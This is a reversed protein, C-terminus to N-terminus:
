RVPATTALLAAACLVAAALLAEAAVSLVLPRVALRDGGLVVAVDLRRQVFGKSRRAALLLLGVLGLKLLLRHGYDTTLLASVSGLLDWSLVTGAALVATVSALALWSYRPLVQSLEEPARRPLVVVLLFVLGGLWLSAALVHLFDAVAGLQPHSSAAGHSTLGITRVLGLGVALSGLRWARSRAAAAGQVTLARLLPLTLLWLLARALWVGGVRGQVAERWTSVHTLSSPGSGMLAAQELGLGAVASLTGVAWATLLLVRARPVEAGAPWVLALFGLGGVLLALAAYQLVRSVLLADRSAAGEDVSQAAVTVPAFDSPDILRAGTKVHGDDASAIRWTVESSGNPLAVQLENTGLLQLRQQLGGVYVQSHTADIRESFVLVVSGATSGPRVVVPDAHGLAPAATTLLAAWVAVGVVLLRHM